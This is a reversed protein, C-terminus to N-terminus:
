FVAFTHSPDIIPVENLVLVYEVTSYVQRFLRIFLYNVVWSRLPIGCDPEDIYICTIWVPASILYEVIFRKYHKWESEFDNQNSFDSYIQDFHDHDARPRPM